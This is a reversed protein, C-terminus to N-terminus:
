IAVLRVGVGLCVVHDLMHKCCMVHRRTEPVADDRGHGAVQVWTGQRGKSALMLIVLAKRALLAAATSSTVGMQKMLEKESTLSDLNRQCGARSRPSTNM